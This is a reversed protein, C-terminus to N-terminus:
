NAPRWIGLRRMKYLLTTRRVGLRAAAGYPGGVVWDTKQLAQVIYDREAERLTQSGPADTNSVEQMETLPSLHLLAGVSLIVSREIVNQLERVNGPWSYHTLAEMDEHRIKEIRKNLGRAYKKVFHRTLLPIDEKRERLAPLHIPFVNLRYYLDSRFRNQEVMQALDRNTAAVLRFNARITRTSGLREFEREQLVRLLKSQLELPIDGVEDLFLTGNEALEFRGIERSFAGTFAGKEHGFLENELLGSPISACNVRVMPGSSRSSFKHIISAVLEKGTGTEGLLLVAADTNAVTELQRFVRKLGRRKGIMEDCEEEHRGEEEALSEQFREQREGAAMEERKREAIEEGLALFCPPSTPTEPLTWVRLSLWVSSGDRRQYQAEVKVSGTRGKLLEGFPDGSAPFDHLAKKQLEHETCGLLARFLSNSVRYFGDMGALAIGVPCNEFLAGWREQLQIPQAEANLNQEM